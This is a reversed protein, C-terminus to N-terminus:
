NLRRLAEVFDHCRRLAAFQVVLGVALLLVQRNVELLVYHHDLCLVIVILLLQATLYDYSPVLRSYQRGCRDHLYRALLLTGYLM